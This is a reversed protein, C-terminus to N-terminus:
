PRPARLWVTGGAGVLVECRVLARRPAEGQPGPWLREGSRLDYRWRHWPCIVTPGRPAGGAEPESGTDEPARVGASEAAGPATLTGQFLPGELHPCFAQVCLVEDGFRYLAMRGWPTEIPLPHEPDLAEPALGTDFDEDSTSRAGAGYRSGHEHSGGHGACGEEGHDPVM